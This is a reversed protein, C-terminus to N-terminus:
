LEDGFIEDLKEKRIEEVTKRTPIFMDELFKERYRDDKLLEKALLSMPAEM